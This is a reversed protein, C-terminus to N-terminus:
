TNNYFIFLSKLHNKFHHGKQEICAKRRDEDSSCNGRFLQKNMNILKFTNKISMLLLLYIKQFHTIKELVGCLFFM